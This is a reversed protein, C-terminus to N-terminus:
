SLASVGREAGPLRDLFSGFGAPARSDRRASTRVVVDGARRCRVGSALLDRWLAVDEGSALPRWGGSRQYAAATFGLNAGHVHPHGPGTGTAHLYAAYHRRVEPARDSWDDVEVLGAVADAGRAAHCLQRDLWDDPV